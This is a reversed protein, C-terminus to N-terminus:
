QDLIGQNRLEELLPLLPLGLVTFYDGSIDAFLQAGMGELRYAGVSSLVRDGESDLYHTIFADSIDRMKMNAEAVHSWIVDASKMIVVGATLTHTRGRFAQIHAMAESIDRPKDFNKGGLSLLQDCGIVYADPYNKAVQHAKARALELALSKPGSGSKIAQQKLGDEDINADMWQFSIGAGELIQRRATSKSALILDPSTM